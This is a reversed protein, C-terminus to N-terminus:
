IQKRFNSATQGTVKKFTKSFYYENAFGSLKAVENVSYTMDNLLESAYELKKKIIYKNPSIGFHKNFLKSMYTHSIGCLKALFECDINLDTFHEDIYNIAPLIMRYSKSTIYQSEGQQIKSLINYLISLSEYYYGDRKYYWVKHLKQFQEKLELHNSLTIALIENPIQTDTTFGINISEGQEKVLATYNTTGGNEPKPTFRIYDSKETISKNGYTIVAEGSLKYLLQYYSCNTTKFRTFSDKKNGFQRNVFIIEGIKIKEPLFM